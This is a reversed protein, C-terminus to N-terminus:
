RNPRLVQIYPLSEQLFRLALLTALKRYFAKFVLRSPSQGSYELKVLTAGVEPDRKFEM